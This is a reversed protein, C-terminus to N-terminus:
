LFYLSGVIPILADLNRITDDKGQLQQRLKNIEFIANSASSTDICQKYNQFKLQLSVYNQELFAFRKESESILHKQKSIEAELELVKTHE